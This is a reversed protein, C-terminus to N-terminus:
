LPAEIVGVSSLGDFGGDRPRAEQMPAADEGHHSGPRCSSGIGM